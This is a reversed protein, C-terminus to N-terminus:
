AVATVAIGTGAVTGAGASPLAPRASGGALDVDATGISGGSPGFTLSSVYRVSAVDGIADYLMGLKVTPENLWVAPDSTPGGAWTASSLFARIAAETDAKVTPLDNGPWAKVTATVAVAQYLADVVYVLFNVERESTLFASVATRVGSGVTAGNVDAVAVTITRANGTSEAGSPVPIAGSSSSPKLGDVATARYVGPITRALVAFDDPLIPRPSALTLTEALRGLFVDDPEADSGGSSPAAVTVGTIYTPVNILEATGSLDNTIAGEDLAIVQLAVSASAAPIAGDTPVIFARLEGDADRLGITTNAPIPHGVTDGATFTATATASTAELSPIGALPGFARFVADTAGSAVDAALAAEESIAEIVLTELNGPAAEFGSITNELYEFAQEALAAPDTEIPVTLRNAV